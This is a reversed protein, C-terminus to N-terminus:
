SVIELVKEIIYSSSIEEYDLLEHPKGSRPIKKVALQHVIHTHDALAALVAEGLGGEAFHDEVTVIAKTERAAKHLTAKDLPKISYLDVVRVSIGQERLIHYAKLAEYLTVGAAVVTVEDADSSKLVKCGGVEFTEHMDYVPDTDMRTTRM